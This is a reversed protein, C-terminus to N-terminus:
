FVWPCWPPPDVAFMADARTLAGPTEEDVRGARALARYGIGGLFAAALDDVRLALDAPRDTRECSAGDPGGSLEFRGENWDCFPDVVELVLRDEAGYRRGAMAASVDVLRIYLGDHLQFRLRRPDVLMALLPEDPPRRWAEVRTTLDVGFCYRWLAAYPGLTDAVLEQVQVTGDPGSASWDSKVRYVLYGDVDGATEHLVYFYASAGDRNSELDAFMVNWMERSCSPMGARRGRFREYAAPIADAAEEPEVLRLRGPDPIDRLFGARTSDIQSHGGFTATGYGFRGYIPGESAWLGAISEGRDRVDELQRRMMSTLVGRRRHTPLVGVATVGAMPLDGGPVSLRMSFAAATGVISGGDVAVLARDRESAAAYLAEEEAILHHGFAHEVAVLFAHIEDHDIPRVRIDM